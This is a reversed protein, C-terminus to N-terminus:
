FQFYIFPASSSPAILMLGIMAVAFIAIQSGITRNSLWV